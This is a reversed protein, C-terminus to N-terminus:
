QGSVFVLRPRGKVLDEARKAPLPKGFLYGQGLPCQLQGLQEAKDEEEIGEAVVDLGMNRGLDLMTRVIALNTHVSKDLFFSRDIKLVDFPYRALYSLSSYGTGFDDVCLRVGLAKLRGFRAGSREPDSILVSETLELWLRSPPLGSGTLAEEVRQELDFQAFERNSINVTVFLDNYPAEMGQWLALQRCAEKLVWAGIPIILGTEEALDLFDVPNLLGHEPHEWRILAEFGRLVRDRLSVIPQYYLRLQNRQVAHRLDAELQLRALVGQHMSEDFLRYRGGGRTKARNLAVTAHHLVEDPTQNEQAMALGLGASPTVESGSLNLPEEIAIQLREAVHMAVEASGVESLLVAFEDGGFRAVSDNPRVLRQIRRSVEVLLTDGTPNGFRDNIDRFRDLGLLVVAFPTAGRRMRALALELNHRFAVKNALGTLSDYRTERILRAQVHRQDGAESQSGYMRVADGNVDRVTWAHASVHAFDGSSTRIRYEAFFELEDSELHKHLMRSIRDREEEHVLDLWHDLDCQLEEAEYGLMSRWHESLYLQNDHVDWDWLGDEAPGPTVAPRIGSETPSVLNLQRSMEQIRIRTEVLAADKRQERWRMFMFGEFARRTLVLVLMAVSLTIASAIGLETWGSSAGNSLAIVGWAVVTTSVLITLWRINAFVISVVVFIWVLFAVVRPDIGIALGLLLNAAALFAIGGGTEGISASRSNPTTSARYVAWLIVATFLAFVSVVPGLFVPPLVWHIVAVVAYGVALVRSIRPMQRSLRAELSVQFADRSFGPSDNAPKVVEM